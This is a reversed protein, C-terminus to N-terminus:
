PQFWLTKNELLNLNNELINQTDEEKVRLVVAVEEGPKRLNLRKKAEYEIVNPDNFKDIYASLQENEEGLEEIEKELQSVAYGTQIKQIVERSAIGGLWLLVVGLGAIPFLWLLSKLNNFYKPYNGRKKM